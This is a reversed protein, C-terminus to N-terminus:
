VTVATVCRSCLTSYKDQETFLWGSLPETSASVQLLSIIFLPHNNIASLAFQKNYCLMGTPINKWRIFKVHGIGTIQWYSGTVWCVQRYIREGYSNWVDMEQSKGTVSVVAFVLCLELHSGIKPRIQMTRWLVYTLLRACLPRDTAICLSADYGTVNHVLLTLMVQQISDHKPGLGANSAKQAAIVVNAFPSASTNDPV